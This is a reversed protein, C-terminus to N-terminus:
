AKQLRPNNMLEFKQRTLKLGLYSLSWCAVSILAQARFVVGIRREGLGLRALAEKGNKVVAGRYPGKIEFELGEFENLCLGEFGWRILGVKPIWRLLKPTNEKSINKPHFPSHPLFDKNLRNLM